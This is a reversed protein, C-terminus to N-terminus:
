GEVTAAIRLTLVGVAFIDAAHEVHRAESIGSQRALCQAEAGAVVSEVVRRRQQMRHLCLADCYCANQMAGAQRQLLRHQVGNCTYIFPTSQLM